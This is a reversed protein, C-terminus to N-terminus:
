MDRHDQRVVACVAQHCNIVYVNLVSDTNRWMYVSWEFWENGRELCSSRMQVVFVFVAWETRRVATCHLIMLLWVHVADGMKVMRTTTRDDDLKIFATSHSTWGHLWSTVIYVFWHLDPHRVDARSPPDHVPMDVENAVSTSYVVVQQALFATLLACFAFVLLLAVACQQDTWRSLLLGGGTTGMGGGRSSGTTGENHLNMPRLPLTKFVTDISPIGVVEDGDSGTIRM